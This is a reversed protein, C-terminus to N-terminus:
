RLDIIKAGQPAKFQFASAATATQNVSFKIDTIDARGSGTILTLTAPWGTSRNFTVTAEAIDSEPDVPTLRVTDAVGKVETGNYDTALHRLVHLPNTEALEYPTPEVIVVENDASSYSWQTKGDYSVINGSLDIMFCNDSLTMSAAVGNIQCAVNLTPAANVKQVAREVAAPVGAFAAFASLVTLIVFCIKKM